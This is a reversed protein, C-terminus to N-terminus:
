RNIEDLLAVAKEYVAGNKERSDTIIENIFDTLTLGKIRAMVNIYNYNEDTFAMNIRKAKQRERGKEEVRDLVANVIEKTDLIQKEQAKQTAQADFMNYGKTEETPRGEPRATAEAITSYVSNTNIKSFDKKAM